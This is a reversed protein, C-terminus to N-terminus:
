AKSRQTARQNLCPQPSPVCVFVIDYGAVFYLVGLHKHTHTNFYQIAQAAQHCLDCLWPFAPAAGWLWVEGMAATHGPWWVACRAPLLFFLPSSLTILCPHSPLLSFHIIIWELSSDRSFFFLMFWCVNWAPGHQYKGTWAERSTVAPWAPSVLM